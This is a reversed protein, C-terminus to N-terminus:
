RKSNRLEQTLQVIHQPHLMDPIPLRSSLQYITEIHEPTVLLHVTALVRISNRIRAISHRQNLLVPTQAHQEQLHEQQEVLNDTAATTTATNNTTANSNNNNKTANPLARQIWIFGNTGFLITYHQHDLFVTIFHNKRRAILAPPVSVLCGNQLKGYRLSRTHLVLTGDSHHVNHVEASVLDGERFLQRMDRSDQATRMRQVGGKLHVGSLPLQAQRCNSGVWVKWRSPQQISVVRGVVLDGVHGVYLSSSLPIVSVLRNVREVRGAVSAVLRTAQNAETSEGDEGNQDNKSTKEVYTGHGRLFGEGEAIVQGPVVLHALSSSPSPVSLSSAM